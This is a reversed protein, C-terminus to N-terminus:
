GPRTSGRPRRRADAGAHRRGARRAALAFATAFGARDLPARATGLAGALWERVSAGAHARVLALLGDATELPPAEPHRSRLSSSAETSNTVAM